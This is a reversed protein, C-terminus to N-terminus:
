KTKFKLTKKNKKKDIVVLKNWKGKKRLKKKHSKLKLTFTKKGSKIKIKKGNLTIKKIKDKDIIKIKATKKIKSNNKLTKKGIKFTTKNDKKKATIPAVTSTEISPDIQSDPNIVPIEEGGSPDGVIVKNGKKWSFSSLNIYLAPRIGFSHDIFVGDEDVFGDEDVYTVYDKKYGPSRLWWRVTKEDDANIAIRPESHCYFCDSFGYGPQVIDFLSLLFVKDTTDEGGSTKYFPNDKNKVVSKRIMKKENDTFSDNIFDKNLWERIESNKWEGGKYGYDFKIITKDSVLFAYDGTINLVRWNIAKGDYKGFIVTDWESGKVSVNVKDGLKVYPSLLNIRLSPRIGGDCHSVSYDSSYGDCTITEASTQGYGKPSRLWWWGFEGDLNSEYAAGNAKAYETLMARRGQNGNSLSGDFGYDINKVDDLSLLFINDKTNEAGEIRSLPNDDNKVNEYIIATKDDAGFAINYFHNNLWTRLSSESWTYFEKEDNYAKADLIKDSIVLATGDSYKKLVQWTIPQKEDFEDAKGDGNTDEQWYNGFYVTERTNYAIRPNSLGYDSSKEANVKISNTGAEVLAVTMFAAVSLATIRKETSKLINRGTRM